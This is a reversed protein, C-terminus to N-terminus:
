IEELESPTMIFIRDKQVFNVDNHSELYKIFKTNAEEVNKAKIKVCITVIWEEEYLCIYEILSDNYEKITKATEKIQKKLDESLICGNNIQKMIKEISKNSIFGGINYKNEM